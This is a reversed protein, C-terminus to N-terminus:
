RALAAAVAARVETVQRELSEALARTNAGARVRRLIRNALVTREPSGHPLTWLLDQTEDVPVGIRGFVEARDGSANPLNTTPRPAVLGAEALPLTLMEEVFLQNNRGMVAVVLDAM